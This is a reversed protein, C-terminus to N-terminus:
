IKNKIKCNNKEVLKIELKKHLQWQEKSIINGNIWYEEGDLDEIAAGDIRHRKGMYYYENSYGPINIAPKNERHLLGEYYWKKEGSELIMAPEDNISHLQGNANYHYQNGNNDTIYKTKM